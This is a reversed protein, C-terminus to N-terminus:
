SGHAERLQRYVSRAAMELEVAVRIASEVKDRSIESSFLAPEILKFGKHANGAMEEFTGAIDNAQQETM